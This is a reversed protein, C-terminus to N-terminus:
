PEGEKGSVLETGQVAEYLFVKMHQIATWGRTTLPVASRGPVYSAVRLEWLLLCLLLCYCEFYDLPM